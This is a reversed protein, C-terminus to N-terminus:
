GDAERSGERLNHVRFLHDELKTKKLGIDCIPCTVRSPNPKTRVHNRLVHAGLDAYPVLVACYPCNWERPELPLKTTEPPQTHVHVSLESQSMTHTGESTEPKRVFGEEDMVYKPKPM